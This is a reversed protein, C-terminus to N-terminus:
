QAMLVILNSLHCVHVCVIFWLISQMEPQLVVVYTWVSSPLYLICFLDCMFCLSSIIKAVLSLVVDPHFRILHVICESEHHSINKNQKVIIESVMHSM